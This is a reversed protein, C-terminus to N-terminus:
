KRVRAIEANLEKVTEAGVAAAYKEVVPKVKERLKAMEAPPLESVVMGAAKLAELAKDAEGRSVGRQFQTAERAADEIIRREEASMGDWTKRGILLAQPNYIHRTQTIYKQVEAFKSALITTNPNEQGDVAKQDLAAYLEPFPLPTANAGLTSFLDIYLPSQIVRIKLGAIDEAKAIPRKSNTLNRFGLDWYGLGHLNKEELRALLKRGFAGDTVADAEQANGFLFPLDYAAFEKVQASLIGANLVTMEVTGGQLASVTQLDGGLAGGPFLKVTIKRGSKEAVLDAFKQAGQAQPHGAQNQFAFKLTREKVQAQAGLMALAALAAVTLQRVLSATM